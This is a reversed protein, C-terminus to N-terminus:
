LRHKGEGKKKEYSGNCKKDGSFLVVVFIRFILLSSFRRCKSYAHKIGCFKDSVKNGAQGVAAAVFQMVFLM